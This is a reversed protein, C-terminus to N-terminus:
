GLPRLRGHYFFLSHILGCGKGKTRSILYIGLAPGDVPQHCGGGQRHHASCDRHRHWTAGSPASLCPGARRYLKLCCVDFAVKIKSYPIKTIDALERPFLDTPAIPMKCRNALAIGFAIIAYGAAFYLVRLLFTQPLLTVWLNHVDMMMSMAFGTLFCFLYSLVFRRKLLMLTLVLLAQFLYNWTGLTLHPLVESLVYPVSSITSIGSGSHLMLVVGLSNICIVVLLAIEGRLVPKTKTQEM